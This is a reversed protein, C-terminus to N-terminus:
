GELQDLQYAGDRYGRVAIIEKVRRGEHTKAIFVILNVAEAILAHMPTVSVEAILHEIRILAAAASNAHVSALGGDHGTNWFKLLDLAEGGRVEGVIPRDPRLRMAARVLRRLGVTDTARMTLVNPASCQLEAIDEMILVRHHPAAAGMFHLMANLLTTKGSSTGGAVVINKRALIAQEIRRRQSATMVGAAVYDELPVVRSPKLRIAFSPTSVVPPILAEFRGGFFPEGGPLECELIPSERTVVAGLLSAAHGIFSEAAGAGMTGVCRMGSGHRDEWLTGDPNLMLEFVGDEQLIACADPGLQRRMAEVIRQAAEKKPPLRDTTNESFAM